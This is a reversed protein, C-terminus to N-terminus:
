SPGDSQLPAASTKRSFQQDRGGTRICKNQRDFRSVGDVSKRTTSGHCSPSSGSGARPQDGALEPLSSRFSTIAHTTIVLPPEGLPLRRTARRAAAHKNMVKRNSDVLDPGTRELEPGPRSEQGHTRRAALELETRRIPLTSRQGPRIGAGVAKGVVTAPPPGPGKGSGGCTAPGLVSYRWLERSSKMLSVGCAGPGTALDRPKKKSNEMKRPEQSTPSAVRAPTEPQDGQLLRSRGAVRRGLWRGCWSRPPRNM